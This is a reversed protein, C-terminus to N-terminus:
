THSDIIAASLAQSLKQETIEDLIQRTVALNVVRVIQDWYRSNKFYVTAPKLNNQDASDILSIYQFKKLELDTLEQIKIGRYKELQLIRTQFDTSLYVSPFGDFFEKFLEYTTESFARVDLELIVNTASVKSPKSNKSINQNIKVCM